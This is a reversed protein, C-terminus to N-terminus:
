RAAKSSTPKTKKSTPVADGTSTEPSVADKVGARSSGGKRGRKGPKGSSAEDGYGQEVRGGGYGYVVAGLGRSPAMNLVGGLLRGGVQSLVKRCLEVQEVHTKGVAIVLLAGDCTVTLLGADTVPLLPPADLIVMFEETLEDVLAHMRQSGLLESPNPPIRGATIVQLNPTQTEQLVDEVALDGVLVQTLGVAPDLDFTSALSPKRLDADILLTPQGAAAMMRALNASVTSKGENANASTVVISRPPHDVDVFRLNTRLQRFAEAVVGLDEHVGRSGKSLPEAVPIIGVVAGVGAEEVNTVNRVKRDVSRRGLALAYGLVLGAGAGLLLNLQWDPSSPAGPLLAEESPVLQVLDSEPEGEALGANELDSVAEGLAVVAANALDRAAEPSAATASVSVRGSDPTVSASLQGAVAEPADDLGQSEAVLEAVKRDSILTTYSEAKQQQTNMNTLLEGASAATGVVVYGQSTATYVIPQRLTDLFMVLVGLTVAGLIVLFNARTLRLFDIFTV